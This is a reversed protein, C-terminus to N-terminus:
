ISSIRNSGKLKFYHQSFLVDYVCFFSVHHCIILFFNIIGMIVETFLQHYENVKDITDIVKVFDRHSLSVSKDKFNDMIHIYTHGRFPTVCLEIRGNKLTAM